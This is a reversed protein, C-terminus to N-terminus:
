FIIVKISEESNSFKNHSDLNLASQGLNTLRNKERILSFLVNTKPSNLYKDSVSNDKQINQDNKM